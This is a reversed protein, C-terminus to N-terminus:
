INKKSNKGAYNDTLKHCPVCLTVGNNIDLRLKPFHAWSKIHHAELYVGRAGCTQCTWNDRNFIDSRWQKYETTSNSRINKSLGGKWRPHKTKDKYSELKSLSIRKRSDEIMVTGKKSSPIGKKADSIKKITEKSRIKGINKGKLSLSIKRKHEETLPPPSKRAM